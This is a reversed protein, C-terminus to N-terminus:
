GSEQSEKEKKRGDDQRPQGNSDKQGREIDDVGIDPPEDFHGEDRETVGGRDKVGNGGGGFIGRQLGQQGNDVVAIWDGEEQHVKSGQGCRSDHRVDRLGHDAYDEEEGNEQDTPHNEMQGDGHQRVTRLVIVSSDLFWGSTETM